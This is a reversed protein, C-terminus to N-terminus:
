DWLYEEDYDMHFERLLSRVEDQYSIAHHHAEQGQIYDRVGEVGSESVSFAAYGNQWAFKMMEPVVEKVWKSSNRKLEGVVDAVARNKSLQMLIHMHDSMGGVRLAPSDLARLIGGVYAHMRERLEPGYLFPYRRKTSFVIHIYIKALSQAM